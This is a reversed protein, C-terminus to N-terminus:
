CKKKIIAMFIETYKMPRNIYHCAKKRWTCTSGIGSCYHAAKRPGVCIPTYLCLLHNFAEFKPNLLLHITCDIFCFCLRQDAAHYGQLQDAGKNESICIVLKRM